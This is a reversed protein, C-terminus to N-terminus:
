SVHEQSRKIELIKSNIQNRVYGDANYFSNFINETAKMSELYLDIVSFDDLTIFLKRDKDKLQKAVRIVRNLAKRSNESSEKNFQDNRFDESVCIVMSVFRDLDIDEVVNNNLFLNNSLNNIEPKNGIVKPSVLNDSQPVLSDSQTLLSDNQSTNIEVVKEPLIAIYGDNFSEILKKDKLRQIQRDIHDKRVCLWKQYYNEIYKCYNGSGRRSYSYILAYLILDKGKLGYDTIMWPQIITYDVDPNNVVPGKDITTQYICRKTKNIFVVQKNLLKKKVLPNIYRLVNNSSKPNIGIWEAITNLSGYWQKKDQTFGYIISFTLLERINLKYELMWDAIAIYKIALSMNM